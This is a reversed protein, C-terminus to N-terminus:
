TLEKPKDLRRVRTIVCEDTEGFTEGYGWWFKHVPGIVSGGFNSIEVIAEEPFPCWTHYPYAADSFRNLWPTM